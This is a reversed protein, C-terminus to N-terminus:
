PLIVVRSVAPVTSSPAPTPGTSEESAHLVWLGVVDAAAILVGAVAVMVLRRRRDRRQWEEKASAYADPSATTQSALARLSETLREDMTQDAM